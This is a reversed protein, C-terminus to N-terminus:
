SLVTRESTTETDVRPKTTPDFIVLLVVLFLAVVGATLLWLPDTM